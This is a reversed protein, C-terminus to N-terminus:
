MRLGVSALTVIIAITVLTTSHISFASYSKKKKLKVGPRCDLGRLGSEMLLVYNLVRVVIVVSLIWSTTGTDTLRNTM